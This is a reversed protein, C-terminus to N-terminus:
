AEGDGKSVQIGTSFYTDYVYDLAEGANEGDLASLSANFAQANWIELTAGVGALVAESGENLGYAQRLAQKVDSIVGMPVHRDARISVTLREQDEASMRRREAEVRQAIDGVSVVDNGMQILYGDGGDAAKGIYISVVASKHALKEVAQGQPTEYRVKLDVDRMHTVIMFFFLVTFILDPLSAMNLEPLSHDRRRFRRRM